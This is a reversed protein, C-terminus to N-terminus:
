ISLFKIYWCEDCFLCHIFVTILFQYLHRRLSSGKNLSSYKLKSVSQPFVWISAIKRVRDCLM